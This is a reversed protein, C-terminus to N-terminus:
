TWSLPDRLGDPPATARPSMPAATWGSPLSSPFAFARDPTPRAPCGAHTALMSKTWCCTWRGSPGDRRVSTAYGRADADNGHRLGVTAVGITPTGEAVSGLRAGRAMSVIFSSDEIM